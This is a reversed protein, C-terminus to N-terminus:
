GLVYNFKRTGMVPGPIATIYAMITGNVACYAAATFGDMEYEDSDPAPTMVIKHSTLANADAISFSKHKVPKTGFNLTVQNVTFSGSGTATLDTWSSGDCWYPKNNSSLRVTVGALASTPTPLAAVVLASRPSLEKM